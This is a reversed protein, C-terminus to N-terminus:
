FVSTIVTEISCNYWIGWSLVWLIVAPAIVHSLWSTEKELCIPFMKSLWRLEINAIIRMSKCQHLNYTSSHFLKKIDTEQHTVVETLVDNIICCIYCINNFYQANWILTWLEKLIDRTGNFIYRTQNFFRSIPHFHLQIWAFTVLKMLFM